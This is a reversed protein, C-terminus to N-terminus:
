EDEIKYFVLRTQWPEVEKDTTTAWHTLGLQKAEEAHTEFFDVTLGRIGVPETQYLDNALKEM